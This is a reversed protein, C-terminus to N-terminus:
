LLSSQIANKQNITENKELGSSENYDEERELTKRCPPIWILKPEQQGKLKWVFWAYGTATSAKKDLRGKVMPVREAFQAFYAPPNNRFIRDYRGM